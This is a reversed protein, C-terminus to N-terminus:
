KSMEVEVLGVETIYEVMTLSREDDELIRRLRKLRKETISDISVLLIARLIDEIRYIEMIMEFEDIIEQKVSKPKKKNKKSM